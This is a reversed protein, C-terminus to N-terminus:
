EDDDDQQVAAELEAEVHVGQRENQHYQHDDAAQIAREDVDPIRALKGFVPAIRTM